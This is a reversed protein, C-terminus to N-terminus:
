PALRLATALLRITADDTALFITVRNTGAPAVIASRAALSGLTTRAAQAFEAADRLTDWRTDIVAGIQDCRSTAGPCRRARRVVVVRDGGWGAAAGTAVDATLRGASELWVRLTFEGLTDRLDVSWGAGLRAALDAPLSVAIPAEGTAYKEPHLIQETSVPPRAFLRNVAPWGGAAKAALVFQLGSTYPFLLSQKLVDPMDALIKAQTPDNSDAFLQALQSPGLQAQAWLTMVLTADGEALASHATTTDSQGIAGLHLNKLGFHQDQLAHTFEHAFTVQETPGIAGSKSVVYLQRTDPDYYGAVQSGLLKLYLDALSSGPPLLGMLELLRQNAAVIAAPNDKAFSAAINKQLAAEDLLIPHVTATAQLDRLQEVQSEIAAYIAAADPTPSAAVATSSATAVATPNLPQSSAGSAPASATSGTAPVSTGCAAVLGAVALALCLRRLPRHPAAGSLQRPM